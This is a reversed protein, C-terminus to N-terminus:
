RRASQGYVPILEPGLARYRTHSFKVKKDVCPFYMVYGFAAPLPGLWPSLYALRCLSTPSTQVLPKMQSTRKDCYHAAKSCYHRRRHCEHRM